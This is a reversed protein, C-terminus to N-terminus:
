VWALLKTKVRMYEVVKKLGHQQMELATLLFTARTNIFHEKVFNRISLYGGQTHCNNLFNCLVKSAIIDKPFTSGSNITQRTCPVQIDKLNLQKDHALFKFAGM